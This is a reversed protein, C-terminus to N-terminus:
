EKGKFNIGWTTRRILGDCTRFLWPLFMFMMCASLVAGRWILTGIESVVGNTSIFFVAVGAFTLISASTLITIASHKVTSRAAESPLYGARRDFYERAFIIAYDVAAGLQVADIVLYGIYNLSTGTFYPIALNIWIAMKIAILIIFPISLSKFLLALVIGISLMSFLEVRGADARVTERLDYSSVLNGAVRADDGYYQSAVDRVQEVAAFSRDSEGSVGMTLVLRSWGNSVVQSLTDEPVVEVPMAQGAVTVYSTVGDVCDLAELDDALARESAVDGEPVMVVWTEAEEFADGVIQQENYVTTGPSVFGDTGYIFNTRSEGLFCPVAVLIVILTMPVMAKQCFKAFRGFDPLLYRHEFRNLLPTCMLTLCPMFFMVTFFSFVIGKALVIGMNIGIGFNMVTLSLFGFFTVAASSLVVSFGKYMAHAMAEEPDDIQRLCRRYTHLLVIAYDMSVALQLIAGCIQSM